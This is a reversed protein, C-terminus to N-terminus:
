KGQIRQRSVTCDFTLIWRGSRPCTRSASKYAHRFIEGDWRLDFLYRDMIELDQRVHTNFGDLPGAYLQVPILNDPATSM